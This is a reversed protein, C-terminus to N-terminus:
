RSAGHPYVALREIDHCCRRWCDARWYRNDVRRRRTLVSQKEVRYTGGDTNRVTRGVISRGRPGAWFATFAFRPSVFEGSHQVVFRLGYDHRQLATWLTIAAVFALLFAFVVAAVPFVGFGFEALAPSQGRTDAFADAVGPAIM